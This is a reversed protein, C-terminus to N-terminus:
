WNNQRIKPKKFLSPYIFLRNYSWIPHLNHKHFHHLIVIGWGNELIPQLNNIKFIESFPLVILWFVFILCIVPISLLATRAIVGIGKITAYIVLLLIMSNIIIIPTGLYAITIM